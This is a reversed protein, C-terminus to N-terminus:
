ATIRMLDPNCGRPRMATAPVVGLTRLDLLYDDKAIEHVVGLWSDWLTLVEGSGFARLL